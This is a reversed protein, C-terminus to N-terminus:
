ALTEKEAITIITSALQTLHDDSTVTQDAVSPYFLRHVKRQVDCPMHKLYRDRAVTESEEDGEPLISIVIDSPRFVGDNDVAIRATDLILGLRMAHWIAIDASCPLAGREKLTDRLGTLARRRVGDKPLLAVLADVYVSLKHEPVFYDVQLQPEIMGILARAGRDRGRRPLEKDDALVAFHTDVGHERLLEALRRGLDVSRQVLFTNYVGGPVLRAHGVEISAHM